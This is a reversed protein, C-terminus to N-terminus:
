IVSKAAANPQSAAVALWYNYQGNIRQVGAMGNIAAAMNRNATENYQRM